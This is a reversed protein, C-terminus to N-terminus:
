SLRCAACCFLPVPFPPVRRLEPYQACRWGPGPDGNPRLALPLASGGGRRTIRRGLMRARARRLAWLMKNDRLILAKGWWGLTHAIVFEDFVTNHIVQPVTPLM